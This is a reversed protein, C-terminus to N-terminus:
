RSWSAMSNNGVHTVQRLETGMRTMTWIQQTGGRMSTFAIHRGNPSFVPSENQPGFTLQRESGTAPDIVKIDFGTKTRSVYAIEDIPGSSWSPRDCYKESTLARQNSGDADMVWIQPSGTRNSTFAIKAGTPSWAPSTDIAWHTTLRRLGSGDANMVYIDENGDRNSTFAISAGDPSWAPLWNKGRGGTPTDQRREELHTVFIDQYGRRYSTYAIARRDPSWSPTLDLDGDVTIRADNAGDYDSVFIEKIRRRSGTPENFAGSRDSVFALRSHALGRIGAQDALIDNAAVHAILRPTKELGAYERGFALQRSAVDHVRVALHLMGGELRLQGSVIGDSPPVQGGGSPPMVPLIEFVGEFDLDARVVEGLTNALRDLEPTGGDATFRALALRPMGGGAARITIRREREKPPVPGPPQGRPLLVLTIVVAISFLLLAALRVARPM